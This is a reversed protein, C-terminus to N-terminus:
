RAQGLIISYMGYPSRRREGSSMTNSSVNYSLQSINRPVTGEKWEGGDGGGGLEFNSSLGYKDFREVYSAVQAWKKAGRVPFKM